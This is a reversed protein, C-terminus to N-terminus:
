PASRGGVACAPRRRLRCGRGSRSISEWLPILVGVCAALLGAGVAIAVSQWTVIRQSGVPFAFSLYGPNSRFVAISLLDGLVLGLLAAAGGLVLADFLLAKVIDLRTAGNARLGGILGQRLPLTLLMANLAFM